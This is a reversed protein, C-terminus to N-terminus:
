ICTTLRNGPKLATPANYGSVIFLTINEAFSRTMFCSSNRCRTLSGSAFFVTQQVSELMAAPLMSCIWHMVIAFNIWLSMGMNCVFSSEFFFSPLEPQKWTVVPLIKLRSNYRAYFLQMKGRQSWKFFTFIEFYELCKMLENTPHM